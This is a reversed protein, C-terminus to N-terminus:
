RNKGADPVPFAVIDIVKLVYMAAPGLPSGTPPVAGCSNVVVLVNLM